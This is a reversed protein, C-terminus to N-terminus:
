TTNSTSVAGATLLSFNLADRSTYPLSNIAGVNITNGVENSTTELQAGAATVQMSETTSGVSLQIAVDTIRGTDAVVSQLVSASFGAAPATLKFTGAPLNVFVFSGDDGSTTDRSINTATDLLTLAAKPVVAGSSDKVTGHIGTTTQGPAVSSFLTAALIFCT